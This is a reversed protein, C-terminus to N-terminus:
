GGAGHLYLAPSTAGADLTRIILPLGGLAEAMTRYAEFQEDEDPPDTRDQFLFETRLLGVAEGGAEVMRGAESVAGINAAVEVRHGDVTIAPRYGRGAGGGPTTRPM